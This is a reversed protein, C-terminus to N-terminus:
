TNLRTFRIPPALRAEVRGLEGHQTFVNPMLVNSMPPWQSQLLWTKQLCAIGVGIAHNAM